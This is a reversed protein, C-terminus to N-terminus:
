VELAMAARFLDDIEGPAFGNPGGLQLIFDDERHFYPEYEFVIAAEPDSDAISQVTALLGARLLVRRMSAARCRMQAREQALTLPPPPPPTPKAAALEAATMDRVVWYGGVIEATQFPGFNPRPM